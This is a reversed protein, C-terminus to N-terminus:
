YQNFYNIMETLALRIHNNNPLKQTFPEYLELRMLWEHQDNPSIEIESLRM